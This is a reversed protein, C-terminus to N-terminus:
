AAQDDLVSGVNSGVSGSPMKVTEEHYSEDTDTLHDGAKGDDFLPIPPWRQSRGTNIASTLKRVSRSTIEFESSRLGSSSTPPHRGTSQYSGRPPLTPADTFFRLLTKCQLTAVYRLSGYTRTGCILWVCPYVLPIIQKSTDFILLQHPAGPTMLLIPM